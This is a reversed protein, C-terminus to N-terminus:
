VESPAVYGACSRTSGLCLSGPDPSLSSPWRRQPRSTMSLSLCELTPLVTSVPLSPPTCGAVSRNTSSGYPWPFSRGEEVHIFGVWHQREELHCVRSLVRCNWKQAHAFDCLVTQMIPTPSPVGPLPGLPERSGTVTEGRVSCHSCPRDGNCLASPMWKQTDKGARLNCSFLFTM